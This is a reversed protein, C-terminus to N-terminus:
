KALFGAVIEQGWGGVVVKKKHLTPLKSGQVGLMQRIKLMRLQAGNLFVNLDGVSVTIAIFNETCIPPM